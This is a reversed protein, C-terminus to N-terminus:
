NTFGQFQSTTKPKLNGIYLVVYYRILIALSPVLVPQLPIKIKLYYRILVLFKRWILDIARKL